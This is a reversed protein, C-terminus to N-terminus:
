HEGDFYDDAVKIVGTSGAGWAVAKLVNGGAAVGTIAGVLVIDTFDSLVPHEKFYDDAHSREQPERETSKGVTVIPYIAEEAGKSIVHRPTSSLEDLAKIPKGQFANAFTRWLGGGLQSVVGATTKLPMLGINLAREGTDGAYAIGSGLTLMGTLLYTGVTRKIEM